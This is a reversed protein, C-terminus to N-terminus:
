TRAEVYRIIPGGAAVHEVGTHDNIGRAAPEPAGCAALMLVASTLLLSRIM